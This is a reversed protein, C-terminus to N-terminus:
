GGDGGDGADPGADTLDCSVPTAAACQSDCADCQCSVLAQYVPSGALIGVVCSPDTCAFIATLATQCDADISCNQSENICTGGTSVQDAGCNTCTADPGNGGFAWACACQTLPASGSSTSSPSSGGSGTTAGAGGPSVLNSGNPVENGIGTYHDQDVNCGIPVVVAPVGAGALLLLIRSVLRM